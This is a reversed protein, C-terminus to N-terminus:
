LCSWPSGRRRWSLEVGTWWKVCCGSGVEVVSGVEGVVPEFPCGAMRRRRRRRLQGPAAVRATWLPTVGGGGGGKLVISPLLIITCEIIKSIILRYTYLIPEVEGSVALLVLEM